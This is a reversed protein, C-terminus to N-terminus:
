HRPYRSGEGICKSIQFDCRGEGFRILRRKQLRVPPQNGRKVAQFDTVLNTTMERLHIRALRWFIDQLDKSIRCRNFIDNFTFCIKLVKEWVLSVEFNIELAKPM